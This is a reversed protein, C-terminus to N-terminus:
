VAPTAPTLLMQLRRLLLSRRVIFFTTGQSGVNLISLDAYSKAVARCPSSSLSDASSEAVSDVIADAARRMELILSVAGNATMSGLDYLFAFRVGDILFLIERQPCSCQAGFSARRAQRSLRQELSSHPGERIGLSEATAPARGLM